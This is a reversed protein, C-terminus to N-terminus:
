TLGFSFHTPFSVVNEDTWELFHFPFPVCVYCLFSGIVHSSHPRHKQSISNFNQTQPSTQVPAVPMLLWLKVKILTLFQMTAVARYYTSICNVRHTHTHAHYVHKYQMVGNAYYTSTGQVHTHRDWREWRTAFKHVTTYLTNVKVWPSVSLM